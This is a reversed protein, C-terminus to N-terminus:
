QEMETVGFVGQLLRAAPNVPYPEKDAVYIYPLRMIWYASQTLKTPGDLTSVFIPACPAPQAKPDLTCYVPAKPTVVHLRMLQALKGARCACPYYLPMDSEAVKHGTDKVISGPMAKLMRDPGSLMFRHGSSCEYEVGIFVKVTFQPQSSTSRGRRGRTAYKNIHPWNQKSKSYVTVDWPLLYNTSSLFGPHHSESLGLNHSYLSSAGLCVLSWSSYLPLLSPSSSLTLMGHLYESKNITDEQSLKKDKETSSEDSEQTEKSAKQYHPFIIRELKSCQCEKSIQQYFIRNAQKVSYPDERAGVKRGCDCIAKYIFGSLHDQDSSHKPLKCPNGTLSAVECQQRGNEWHAQCDMELQTAYQQFAPGRAQARFLALAIALRAEHEAKAYHSPLNEQYRALALPLVKLCRQESFRTETCLLNVLKRKTFLTYLMVSSNIWQKLLPLEFHMTQSHPHRGSTVTDDFGKTRAQHIHVQLFKHFNKESSPQSSYPVEIQMVGGPQCDSLLGKVMYDLRDTSRTEEEIYVYEDNLPIAFLSCGTTSIIRTKKLIYYIKDELNHELKKVNNINSPCKEFYFILRPTCFRGVSAWEQSINDINKLSETIDDNMKQSLSDMAKFYQIYNTDLTSGPHSLIIIHSVHFLFLLYRAFMSKIDDYVALFDDCNRESECKDRIENYHKILSDTDLPSCMHLYITQSEEDYSGEIVCEQDKVDQSPIVRGISKIKLGYSKYASKGIISIVVVKDSSIGSVDFLQDLKPFTFTNRM